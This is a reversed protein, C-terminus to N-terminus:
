NGFTFRHLRDGNQRLWARHRAHDPCLREVIRWFAPGHNMEALHAVEHAAVYDLVEPPAMILRWSYMLAGDTTCSGWRSRTDRLTIRTYPRGLAAAHRDSAAVLADRAANRLFARLQPGTPRAAHVAIGADTLRVGRRDQALVPREQGAFMVTGGVQVQVSPALGGLQKRLWAEKSQLFAVGEREPTWQPLTLSVRGDLRSVRLSLRRAQASRRLTVAIPPNGALTHRGM